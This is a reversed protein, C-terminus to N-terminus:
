TSPMPRPPLRITAGTPLQALAEAGAPLNSEYVKGVRTSAVDRVGWAGAVGAYIAFAFIMNMIVGASIVFTRAWIPKGDFDGPRPVRPEAAQLPPEPLARRRRLAGHQAHAQAQAQAITVGARWGVRTLSEAHAMVPMQYISSALRLQGESCRAAASGEFVRFGHESARESIEGLWQGGM